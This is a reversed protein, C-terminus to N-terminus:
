QRPIHVRPEKGDDIEETVKKKGQAIIQVAGCVSERERKILNQLWICCYYWYIYEM